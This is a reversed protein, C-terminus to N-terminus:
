GPSWLVRALAFGAAPFLALVAPVGLVGLPSAWAFRGAEVLFAAGLWWLGAVFYGFGWAWGALAAAWLTAVPGFRGDTACGDILWVAVTLSLALAPLLGYPPMALAGAAGALWAMVFRRWGWSLVVRPALAAVRPAQPM